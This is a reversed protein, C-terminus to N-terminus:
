KLFLSVFLSLVCPASEAVVPLKETKNASILWDQGHLALAQPPRVQFTGSPYCQELYLEHWAIAWVGPGKLIVWVGCPRRSWPTQAKPRPTQFM